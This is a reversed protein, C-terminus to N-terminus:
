RPLAHDGTGQNASSNRTTAIGILTVAGLAFFTNGILDIRPDVSTVPTQPFAHWAYALAAGGALALRHRMSWGRRRSQDLVVFIGIGYLALYVAVAGWGWKPPITLFVSGALLSGLGLVWPNLAERDVKRHPGVPIAFAVVIFLVCVIGAAVIQIPSAVFIGGREQETQLGILTTAVIGFLFILTAFSLGVPGLWPVEAQDPFLAEVLAISVAISWVAHLTIVYITWWGGIGLPEIAAFELLHLNLYLYDPNFLTQTTFAEELVAYAFGLLFISPWGRGARRVVERIVLAGGGYMPALVILVPMLTIPLNGLLFESVLPALLLLVAANRLGSLSRM